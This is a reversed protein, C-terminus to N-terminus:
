KEAHPALVRFLVGSVSQEPDNNHLVISGAIDSSNSSDILDKVTITESLSEDRFLADPTFCM